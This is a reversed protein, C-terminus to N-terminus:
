SEPGHSDNIIVASIFRFILWMYFITVILLAFGTSSIAKYIYPKQTLLQDNCYIKAAFSNLISFIGVLMARKLYALLVGMQTKTKIEYDTKKMADATKSGIMLTIATMYVAIAISNLTITDSAILKFPINYIWATIYSLLLLMVLLIRHRKYLIIM